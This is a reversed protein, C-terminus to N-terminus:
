QVAMRGLIEQVKLHPRELGPTGACIGPSEVEVLIARIKWTYSVVIHMNVLTQIHTHINYVYM